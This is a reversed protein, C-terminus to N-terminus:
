RVLDPYPLIGLEQLADDVRALAGVVQLRSTVVVM